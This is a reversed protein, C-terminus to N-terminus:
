DIDLFFTIMEWGRKRPIARVKPTKEQLVNLSFFHIGVLPSSVPNCDIGNRVQRLTGTDHQRLM